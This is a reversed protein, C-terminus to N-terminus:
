RHEVARACVTRAALQRGANNLEARLQVTGLRPDVISSAFDIRGVEKAFEGSPLQLRVERALGAPAKRLQAAEAETLAFRVRIPNTQVITALVGGDLRRRCM